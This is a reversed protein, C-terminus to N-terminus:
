AFFQQVKEYCHNIMNGEHKDYHEMYTIEDIGLYDYLKRLTFAQFNTDSIPNSLLNYTRSGKTGKSLACIQDWTLYM